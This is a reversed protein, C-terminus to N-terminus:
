GQFNCAATQFGARGPPNFYALGGVDSVAAAYIPEAPIQVAAGSAVTIDTSLPVVLGKADEGSAFTLTTTGNSGVAAASTTIVLAAPNSGHYAISSITMPTGSDKVIWAATGFTLGTKLSRDFVVTLQNRGANWQASSLRPGRGGSGGYLAAKLAIWTRKAVELEAADTAFHVGDAYDQEILCPGPLVNANDGWAEIIAGRINDLASRRDPPSGTAVEGCVDIMVKPAGPVDTVLNGVMTDIAANYTVKSITSANVVANPGLLMLVAKVANVGSDTVQQVLNAYGSNNKTWENHSGAVDTSGTGVSIFAVPVGQDAMIQTALLPWHSGINTSTDVPDNALGWTDAENYRTAKLTAHAYSQANTAQGVARSDGGVVFVDGIGVNAVTASATTSVKKRVTLTGQGQAQGTLTGSFSGAVVATAITQYAGGNFSAEIDETAGSHSGSITISGTSASRQFTKYQVPSSVSLSNAPTTDPAIAAVIGSICNASAQSINLTKGSAPTVVGGSDQFAGVLDTARQTTGGGATITGAQGLASNVVWANDTLTTVAVGLTAASANSGTANAEPQGTQLVGTYSAANGEIYMSTSASIVVNNAGTAPGALYYLYNWRGGTAKVKNVQTMAVGNYTVGTVLDSTTDGIVGVFLGRFTGSCTHAFTLAAAGTARSHSAADFAIAM